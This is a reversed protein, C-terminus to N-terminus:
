RLDYHLDFSTIEINERNNDEATINKVIITYYLEYAPLVEKLEIINLEQIYVIEKEDSFTEVELYHLTVPYDAFIVEDTRTVNHELLNEITAERVFYRAVPAFLRNYIFLPENRAYFGDFQKVEKNKEQGEVIIEQELDYWYFVEAEEITLSFKIMGRDIGLNSYRVNFTKEDLTYIEYELNQFNEIIGTLGVPTIEVIKRETENNNNNDNNNSGNETEDNKPQEEKEDNNGFCGAVIFIILIIYILKKM